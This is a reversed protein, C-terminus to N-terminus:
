YGQSSKILSELYEVKRELDKIIATQLDDKHQRYIATRMQEASYGMDAIKVRDIAEKDGAVIGRVLDAAMMYANMEVDNAVFPLYEAEIRGCTETVRENLAQQFKELEQQFIAEVNTHRM